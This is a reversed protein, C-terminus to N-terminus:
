FNEAVRLKVSQGIKLREGGKACSFDKGSKQKKGRPERQKTRYLRYTQERMCVVTVLLKDSITLSAAGRSM